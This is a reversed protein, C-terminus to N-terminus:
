HYKAVHYNTFYMGKLLVQQKKVVEFGKHQFFPLATISVDSTLRQVNWEKAKKILEQYLLSAVGRGQYDKGVYMYDIYGEPTISSFGCLKDDKEVLIFYQEAIKKEWKDIENSGSAWVKVQEPTYDGLNVHLITEKFLNGIQTIDANKASRIEM